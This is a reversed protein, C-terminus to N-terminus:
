ITTGHEKRVCTCVCTIYMIVCAYVYEMCVSCVKSKCVSASLIEYGVCLLCMCAYRHVGRVWLCTSKPVCMYVWVEDGSM